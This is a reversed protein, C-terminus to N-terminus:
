KSRGAPAERCQSHIQRNQLRRPTSKLGHLAQLAPDIGLTTIILGLNTILPGLNFSYNLIYNFLLPNTVSGRSIM